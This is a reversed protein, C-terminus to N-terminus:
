WSFGEISINKHFIFYDGLNIPLNLVSLDKYLDNLTEYHHELNAKATYLLEISWFQINGRSYFFLIKQLLDEDALNKDDIVSFEINLHQFIKELTEIKKLQEKNLNSISPKVEHIAYTNNKYKILFDPFLYKNKFHPIELAQTRYAIIDTNQELVLAYALELKSELPIMAQNKTSPFLSTRKGVSGQEIKRRGVIKSSLDLEKDFAEIIQKHVNISLQSCLLENISMLEM